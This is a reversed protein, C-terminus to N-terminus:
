RTYTIFRPNRTDPLFKSFYNIVKHERELKELLILSGDSSIQEASFDISIATNKRYFLTNKNSM